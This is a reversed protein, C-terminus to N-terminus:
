RLSALLLAAAALFAPARTAPAADLFGDPCCTYSCGDEGGTPIAPYPSLGYDCTATEGWETGACCDEGWDRCADPNCSPAPCYDFGEWSYWDEDDCEGDAGEWFADDDYDPYDAFDISTAVTQESKEARGEMFYFTSGGEDILLECAMDNFVDPDELGGLGWAGMGKMSMAFDLDLGDLWVDGDAVITADVALVLGAGYAWSLAGDVTVPTDNLDLDLSITSLTVSAADSADGALAFAVTAGSWEWTGDVDVALAHSAAAWDTVDHDWDFSAAYSEDDWALTWSGTVDAVDPGLPGAHGLTSTVTTDDVDLTLTTSSSTSAGLGIDDMDATTAVEFSLSLDSDTELSGRLYAELDALGDVYDVWADDVILEVIEDDDNEITLQASDVNFYNDSFIGETDANIYTEADTYANIDLVFDFGSQGPTATDTVEVEVEVEAEWLENWPDDRDIDLMASVDLEWQEITEFDGRVDVYASMGGGDIILDASVACDVDFAHEFDGGDMIVEAYVRTDGEVIQLEVKADVDSRDSADLEM